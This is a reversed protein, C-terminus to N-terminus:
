VKVKERAAAYEASQKKCGEIHADAYAKVAALDKDVLADIVLEAAMNPVQEFKSFGFLAKGAGAKSKDPKATLKVLLGAAATVDGGTLEMLRDRLSEKFEPTDSPETAPKGNAGAEAGARLDRKDGSDDEPDDGTSILFLKMMAYKQAGTLSKYSCKDGRDAGTGICHFSLTEGSEGDVLTYKVRVISMFPMKPSVASVDRVEHEVVDPLMIVHRKGLEARVKEAIDAETAYSYNDYKNLGSKQVYGVALIAEALKMALANM